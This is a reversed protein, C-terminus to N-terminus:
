QVVGLCLHDPLFEPPVDDLQRCVIRPQDFDLAGKRTGECQTQYRPSAICALPVERGRSPMVGEMDFSRRDM